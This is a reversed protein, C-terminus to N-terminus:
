FSLSDSEINICDKSPIKNAAQIDLRPFFHIGHSPNSDLESISISFTNDSVLSNAPQWIFSTPTPDQDYTFSASFKGSRNSKIIEYLLLSAFPLFGILGGLAACLTVGPGSLLTCIIAGMSAGLVIGGLGTAGLSLGKESSKTFYLYLGTSLMCAGLGAGIAVLINMFLALAAAIGACLIFSVAGFIIGPHMTKDQSFSNASLVTSFTFILSM